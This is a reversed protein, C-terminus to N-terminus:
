IPAITLTLTDSYIGPPAQSVDRNRARAELTPSAGALCDSRQTFAYSRRSLEGSQLEEHRGADGEDYWLVRYTIRDGVSTSMAYGGPGSAGTAAIRYAGPASPEDTHVCVPVNAVFRTRQASWVGLLLDGDVDVAAHAPMAALSGLGALVALVSPGAAACLGAIGGALVFTRM